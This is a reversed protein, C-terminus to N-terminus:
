QKVLEFPKGNPVVRIPNSKKDKIVKWYKPSLGQAKIFWDETIFKNGIRVYSTLKKSM